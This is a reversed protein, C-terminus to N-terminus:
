SRLFWRCARGVASRRPPEPEAEATEASTQKEAIEALRRALEVLEATGRDAAARAAALQDKHQEQDAQRAAREAVLQDQHAAREGALEAQRAAREGALEATLREINTKLEATARDANVRAHALAGELRVVNGKLEAVARGARERESALETKLTAIHAELASVLPATDGVVDGRRPASVNDPVQIRALGDNGRTRAWHGRAARRRVADSSIGLRAAAEDYTTWQGDTVGMAAQGGVNGGRGGHLTMAAAHNIPPGHPVAGTIPSLQSSAAPVLTREVSNEVPPMGYPRRGEMFM